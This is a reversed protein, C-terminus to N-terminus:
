KMIQEQGKKTTSLNGKSAALKNTGNIDIGVKSAISVVKGDKGLTYGLPIAGTNEYAIQARALMESDLAIGQKSTDSPKDKSDVRLSERLGEGKQENPNELRRELIGLKILREEWIMHEQQNVNRNGINEAVAFSHLVQSRFVEWEQPSKKGQSALEELKSTLKDGWKMIASGLDPRLGYSKMSMEIRSFAQIPKDGGLLLYYAVLKDYDDMISQDQERVSDLLIRRTNRGKNTQSLIKNGLMVDPRSEVSFRKVKEILQKYQSINDKSVLEPSIMTGKEVSDRYQLFERVTANNFIAEACSRDFKGHLGILDEMVRKHKETKGEKVAIDGAKKDFAQIREDFFAKIIEEIETSNKGVAIAEM